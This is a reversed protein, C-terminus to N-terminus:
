EDMWVRDRQGGTRRTTTSTSGACRVGSVGARERRGSKRRSRRRRRGKELRNQQQGKRERRVRYLVYKKKNVVLKGELKVKGKKLYDSSSFFILIARTGKQEMDEPLSGFQTLAVSSHKPKQWEM